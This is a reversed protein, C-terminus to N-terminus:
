AGPAGAIANGLRHAHRRLLASAPLSKVLQTTSPLLVTSCHWATFEDCSVAGAAREGAARGAGRSQERAPSLVSSSAEENRKGAGTGLDKRSEGEVLLGERRLGTKGLRAVGSSATNEKRM